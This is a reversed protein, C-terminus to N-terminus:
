EMTSLWKSWSNGTVYSKVKALYTLIAAYLDKISGRLGIAAEGNDYLYLKETVTYRAVLGSIYEVGEAISSFQEVGSVGITILYKVIAWPLAANGSKDLSVGMDIVSMIGKVWVSIKELVHRLKVDEGAKNRYIRWGKKM